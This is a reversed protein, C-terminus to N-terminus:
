HGSRGCAMDYGCTCITDAAAGLVSAACDGDHEGYRELADRLSTLRSAPVLLLRPEYTWSANRLRSRAACEEAAAESPFEAPRNAADIGAYDSLWQAKLVSGRPECWVGWREQVDTM